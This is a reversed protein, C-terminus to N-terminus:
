DKNASTDVNTPAEVPARDCLLDPLADHDGFTREIQDVRNEVVMSAAWIARESDSLTEPLELEDILEDSYGGRLKELMSTDTDLDVQMGDALEELQGDFIVDDILNIRAIGPLHRIHRFDKRAQNLSRAATPLEARRIDRLGTTYAAKGRDILTGATLLSFEDPPAPQVDVHDAIASISDPLQSDLDFGIPHLGVCSDDDVRRRTATDVAREVSGDRVVSRGGGREFELYGAVFDRTDRLPSDSDLCNSAEILHKEAADFRGARTTGVTLGLNWRVCTENDGLRRALTATEILQHPDADDSLAALVQHEVIPLLQDAYGAHHRAYDDIAAAFRLPSDCLAEVGDDAWWRAFQVWRRRHDSLVPEDARAAASAFRTRWGDANDCVASTDDAVHEELAQTLQRTAASLEGPPVLPAVALWFIAREGPDDFASLRDALRDLSFRHFLRTPGISELRTLADADRVMWGYSTPACGDGSCRAPEDAGDLLQEWLGAANFEAFRVTLDRPDDVIPLDYGELKLTLWMALAWGDLGDEQLGDVIQEYAPGYGARREQIEIRMQAWHYWGARHAHRDTLRERHDLRHQVADTAGLQELIVLLGDLYDPDNEPNWYGTTLSSGIRMALEPQGGVAVVPMSSLAIRELEDGDIGSLASEIWFSAAAFDGAATLAGAHALASRTNADADDVPRPQLGVPPPAIFRHQSTLLPRTLMPLLLQADEGGCHVIADAGLEAAAHEITIPHVPVDAFGADAVDASSTSVLSSGDPMESCREDYLVDARLTAGPSTDAAVALWGDDSDDASIAPEVWTSLGDAAAIASRTIPLGNTSTVDSFQGEVALTDATDDLPYLHWRQHNHSAGCGQKLDAPDSLICLRADDAAHDGTLPRLAGELGENLQRDDLRQMRYGWDQSEVVAFLHTQEDAELELVAGPALTPEFEGFDKPEYGWLGDDTLFLRADASTRTPEQIAWNLDVDGSPTPQHAWTCGVTAALLVATLLLVTRRPFM